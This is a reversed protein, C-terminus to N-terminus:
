PLYAYTFRRVLSSIGITRGAYGRDQLGGGLVNRWPVCCGYM